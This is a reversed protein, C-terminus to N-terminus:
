WRSIPASRVLGQPRHRQRGDRWGIGPEAHFHGAERLALECLTFTTSIMATADETSGIGPMAMKANGRVVLVQDTNASDPCVTYEVKVVGNMGNFSFPQSILVTNALSPSNVYPGQGPHDSSFVQL